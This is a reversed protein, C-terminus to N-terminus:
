RRALKSADQPQADPARMYVPKPPSTSEPAAAGLRAVWQIDPARDRGVSVPAAEGAPWARALMEAGTGVLRPPGGLAARAAEQLPLLRPKVLTLGGAGFV